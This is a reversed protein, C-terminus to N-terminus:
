FTDDFLESTQKLFIFALFCLRHIKLICRSSKANKCDFFCVIFFEQVKLYLLKTDRRLFLYIFIRSADNRM